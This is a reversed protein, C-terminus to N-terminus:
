DGSQKAVICVKNSVSKIKITQSFIRELYFYNINILNVKMVRNNSNSGLNHM